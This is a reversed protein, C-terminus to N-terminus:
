ANLLELVQSWQLKDIDLMEFVCQRGGAVLLQPTPGGYGLCVATHRWTGAMVM